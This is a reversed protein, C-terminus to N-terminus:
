IVRRRFMIINELILLLLLAYVLYKRPRYPSKISLEQKQIEENEGALELRNGTFTNSELSDYLNVAITQRNLEYLGCLNYYVFRSNITEAPTKVRVPHDFTLYRGTKINTDRIDGIGWSYKLLEAWFVPYTPLTHFNNWAENETIDSLGVYVVTGNNINRTSVLPGVGEAEVLVAAGERPSVELFKRLYVEDFSVDEFIERGSGSAEVTQSEGRGGSGGRGGNGGSGGERGEGAGEKVPNIDVPLVPSLGRMASSNFLCGNGIVVLVKGGKAYSVLKLVTRVPLPEDKCNIFITDYKTFDAPFKDSLEHDVEVITGPILSIATILASKNIAPDLDTLVLVKREKVEPISIYAINDCPLADENLIKLTSTGQRINSFTLQRTGFGALSVSNNVKRLSFLESRSELQLEIEASKNDFNKITCTYEYTGDNRDTLYGDVIAFNAAKEGVQRFELELNRANAVRIYTEPAKGEWHEFDSIVLVKGNKNVRDELVGLIAQPVDGRTNGAGMGEIVEKASAADLAKALVVPLSEAAVITNQRGLSEMAITKAESIRDAASMSASSDLIIIVKESVGAPEEILPGALAASILVLALVQLFFLPDTIKTSLRRRSDLVNHSVRRVFLLSPLIIQKPRPKLLYVITLPIIGALAAMGRSFEFDM